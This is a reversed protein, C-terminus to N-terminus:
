ICRGLYAKPDIPYKRLTTIKLQTCAFVITYKCIKKAVNKEETIVRKRIIHLWRSHAQM